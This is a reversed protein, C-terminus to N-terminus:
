KLIRIRADGYFYVWLFFLFCGACSSGSSQAWLGVWGLGVWFLRVRSMSIITAEETRRFSVLVASCTSNEIIMNKPVKKFNLFFYQKFDPTDITPQISISRTPNRNLQPYARRLEVLNSNKLKLKFSLNICLGFRIFIYIYQTLFYHTHPKRSLYNLANVLVGLLSPGIKM